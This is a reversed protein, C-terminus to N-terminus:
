RDRIDKNTETMEMDKKMEFNDMIKITKMAKPIIYKHIKGIPNKNLPM